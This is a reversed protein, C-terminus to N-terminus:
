VVVVEVFSAVEVGVEVEVEPHQIGEARSAPCIEFVM